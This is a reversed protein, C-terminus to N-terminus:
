PQGLRATPLRASVRSSPGSATSISPSRPCSCTDGTALDYGSLWTLRAATDFKTGFPVPTRPRVVKSNAATLEDGSAGASRGDTGCDGSRLKMVASACAAPRHPRKRLGPSKQFEDSRRWCPIGVRDLGTQRAVRTIGLSPLDASARV